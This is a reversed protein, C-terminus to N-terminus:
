ASRQNRDQAGDSSSPGLLGLLASRVGEWRALKRLRLEHVQAALTECDRLTRRVGDAISDPAGTVFTTGMSFAERLIGFDSTIIPRGLYAAEYAGRQMTHDLTTLSMVADCQKLLSVYQADPLFGMLHVNPPRRALLEPRLRKANGTFHFSVDPVLAAAEFMAEVPEDFTFTCVVAIKAGDPLALRDAQPFRVPVDQVIDSRAGWSQVLSRWHENTVLTTIARRCFFRQVFVFARWRPDVFTATHADIVYGAGFTTAYLWVPVCAAGPPNMVFVHQPRTRLLMWLTAVTQTLYKFLVSAYNSGWLGHYIMASRGGLERAITDSRSCFPAWSVFLIGGTKM